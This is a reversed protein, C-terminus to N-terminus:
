SVEPFEPLGTEYLQVPSSQLTGEEIPNFDLMLRAIKGYESWVTVSDGVADAATIKDAINKVNLLNGIM